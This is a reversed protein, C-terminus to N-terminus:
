SDQSAEKSEQKYKTKNGTIGRSLLHKAKHKSEQIKQRAIDMFIPFSFFHM